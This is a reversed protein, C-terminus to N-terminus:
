KDLILRKVEENIKDLVGEVKYSFFKNEAFIFHDYLTVGAINLLIAFRRTLDNDEKSPSLSGSLHNHAVVVSKPKNILMLRNIEQLDLNVYDRSNSSLITKSFVENDQNLYLLVFLEKTASEFLPKVIQLTDMPCTIKKKEVIPEDVSILDLIKSMTKLFYATNEGVGKISKLIEMDASFVKKLSGDFMDLLQHAIENTNKRPIAYFLLIELVEHPQLSNPSTILKEKLRERHGEHM